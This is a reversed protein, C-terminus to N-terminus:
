FSQKVFCGLNVLTTQYSKGTQSTESIFGFQTHRIELGSKIRQLSHDRGWKRFCIYDENHFVFRVRNSLCHKYILIFYNEQRAFKNLEYTSLFYLYFSRIKKQYQLGTSPHLGSKGAILIAGIGIGSRFNYALINASSFGPKCTEYNVAIQNGSYLSWRNSKDIYKFVKLYASVRKGGANLELSFQPNASVSCAILFVVICFKNM